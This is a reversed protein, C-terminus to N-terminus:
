KQKNNNRKTILTRIIFVKRVGKVGDIRQASPPSMDNKDLWMYNVNIIQGKVGLAKTVYEPTFEYTSETNRPKAMM